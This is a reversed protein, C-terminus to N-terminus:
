DKQQWRTLYREMVEFIVFMGLGLMSIAIIGAYMDVYQLFDGNARIYYGLGTQGAIGEAIFLVAIATGTSIKLATIMAPISVPIYVYRLKHWRNAGLSDISEMTEVPVKEAAAHVIIFVQFFIVLSVLFVRSEDGLGLVAIIVPLFVVKPAPYLFYLLPSLLRNIWQSQATLLAIPTGLAAGIGVSITVRRLSTLTHEILTGDVLARRGEQDARLANIFGEAVELPPPLFRQQWMEAAVHWVLTLLILDILLAYRNIFRAIRGEPQKHRM